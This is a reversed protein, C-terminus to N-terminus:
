PTSSTSTQRCLEAQDLHPNDALRAPIFVREGNGQDDVFRARVWEHGQGGPNSASRM